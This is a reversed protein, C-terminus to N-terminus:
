LIRALECEMNRSNGTVPAPRGNRLNKSPSDSWEQTLCPGTNHQHTSFPLQTITLERLSQGSSHSGKICYLTIYVTNYIPGTPPLSASNAVMLGLVSFYDVLSTGYLLSAYLCTAYAFRGWPIRGPVLPKSTVPLEVNSQHRGRNLAGCDHMFVPM